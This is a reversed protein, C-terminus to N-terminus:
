RGQRLLRLRSPEFLSRPEDRALTTRLAPAAELWATLRADARPVATRVLAATEHLNRDAKALGARSRPLGDYRDAVRGLRARAASIMVLATPRDGAQLARRAARVAREADSIFLEARVPADPAPCAELARVYAALGSLVAPPPEAGDFEEVVLARIFARLAPDGPTRSVKRTSAPGALDPIPVPDAVGNGRHSSFLSSTVDATGAAGSVGPFLFDPNGRGNRHCSECAVGARAAQGGLLLPSRFAARGVEVADDTRALCEAPETALVVARDPALWRLEPLTPADGAAAVGLSALALALATTRRGRDM